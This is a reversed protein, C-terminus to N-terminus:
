STETSMYTLRTMHLSNKPKPANALVLNHETDSCSDMSRQRSTKAGLGGYLIEIATELATELLLM